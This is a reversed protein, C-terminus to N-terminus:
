RWGTQYLKITLSRRNSIPRGTDLAQFVFTDRLIYVDLGQSSTAWTTTRVRRSWRISTAAASARRWEAPWLLGPKRRWWLLQQQQESHRFLASRASPQPQLLTACKTPPQQQLRRPACGLRHRLLASPRGQSSPSCHPLQQGLNSSADHISACLQSVLLPCLSALLRSRCRRPCGM